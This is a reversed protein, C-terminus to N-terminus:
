QLRVPTSNPCLTGLTAIWSVSEGRRLHPKFRSHHSDAYTPLLGPISLGLKGCVLSLGSHNPMGTSRRPSTARAARAFSSHGCRPDADRSRAHKWLCGAHLTLLRRYMRTHPYTSGTSVDLRQLILTAALTGASKWSEAGLLAANLNMVAKCYLVPDIELMSTAGQQLLKLQSSLLCSTACDLAPSSGLVKPVEWAFEGIAALRHWPQQTQLTDILSLCLQETGSLPMTDSLPAIHMDTGSYGYMDTCSAPQMSASPVSRGGRPPNSLKSVSAASASPKGPRGNIFKVAPRAPCPRNKKKCPGCV